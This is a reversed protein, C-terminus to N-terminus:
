CGVRDGDDSPVEGPDTGILHPVGVDCLSGAASMSTLLTFFMRKSISFNSSLNDFIFRYSPDHLVIAAVTGFRQASLYNISSIKGVV